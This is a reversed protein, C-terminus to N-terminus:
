ETETRESWLCVARFLTKAYGPVKYERVSCGFDTPKRTKILNTNNNAPTSGTAAFVFGARM